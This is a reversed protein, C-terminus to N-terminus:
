VEVGEIDLFVGAVDINTTYKYTGDALLEIDGDEINEEILEIARRISKIFEERKM